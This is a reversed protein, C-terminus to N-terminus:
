WPQEGEEHRCNCQPEDACECREWVIEGTKRVEWILMWHGCDPCAISAIDYLEELLRAASTM